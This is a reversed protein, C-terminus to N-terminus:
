GSLSPSFQMSPRKKTEKRQQGSLAFECQSRIVAIPTRLEHSVDSSFQREAEFSAQLRALMGNM